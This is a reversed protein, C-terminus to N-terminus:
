KAEMDQCVIYSRTSLSKNLPTLKLIPWLYISLEEIDSEHSSLFSARSKIDNMASYSCIKGEMAEWDVLLNRTFVLSGGSIVCHKSLYEKWSTKATM